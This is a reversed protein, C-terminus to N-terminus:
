RSKLPTSSVGAINVPYAAHSEPHIGVAYPHGEVSISRLSRHTRLDIVDVRSQQPSSVYLLNNAADITLSQPHEAVRITAIPKNDKIVTISADAYNAVYVEGRDPNLALACPMRGTPINHLTRTAPDIAAISADQVHSVYLTSGNSATGWLHMAGAPIKSISRDQPNLESLSDSEYGMLYIRHRTRDVMVVDASGTKINSAANSAGDIVTLMNSFTNSVYAKNADEDVAIAYPRAATPVSTVVADSTGDIITVNRSGPNVVYVVGTHHNIAVADPRTGVKVSKASGDKAIITVADHATDVLYLKGTVENAAFADRSILGAQQAHASVVTLAVFVITGTCVSALHRLPERQKEM